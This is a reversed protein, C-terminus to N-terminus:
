AALRSTPHSVTKNLDVEESFLGPASVIAFLFFLWAVAQMRFFAAETFNYVLGSFFYALLLCGMSGNSRWAKIVTRYGAILVFGLLVVGVWGLNLFVELYGNHAENPRLMPNLRWIADLRPGLWFSEFGTGFVPDRVQSLMESWIVTRDTLTPNRGIAKLADPSADLFVVGASVLLMSVVMFHVIGPRRIVARQNGALLLVSAMLFCSLSTMSDMVQFLHLIMVLIVGQAILQRTRGNAERDQYAAMFRWLAGLGLCLCIVGLTNKNTTVGTFIAAGTWPNWGMGLQPFYKIFLISLPILVFSLRAILRKFAALPQPDTLVVLVMVLDGLAKPWRKVATEPFDSWLISFACYLFFLLIPWSARLLKGVKRRTLLVVIGAALLGSYVARDVPSGELVQGATDMPAGLHFWQSVPRSCAISMWIVPIWLAVSTHTKRDRDLWFLGLIGAAFVITAIGPPM